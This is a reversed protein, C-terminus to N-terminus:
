DVVVGRFCPPFPPTAGCNKVEASSPHSHDGESGPRKVRQSIARLVSQISPQTPGLAPRSATSYLFTAQLQRSVFGPRGARLKTAIGVGSNRVPCQSDQSLHKTSKKPGELCIGTYRLNPSAQKRAGNNV